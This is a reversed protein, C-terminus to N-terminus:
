ASERARWEPETIAYALSDRWAGKVFLHDRIRGEYSMGIKELVRASALNDPHSTAWIRRMGLQDFGFGLLLRAAETAFGEGWRDRRLAYGIDARKHPFSEIGIRAAGVLQQTAREVIALEYSVRPTQEAAAIVAALFASAGENTNPEWPVYRAVTADSSYGLVAAHDGQAHERLYIRTGDLMVVLARM